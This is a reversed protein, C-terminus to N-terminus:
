HKGNTSPKLSKAMLQIATKSGDRHSFQLQDFTIETGTLETEGAYKAGEGPLVYALTIHPRYDRYTSQHDLTELRGRLRHLDESEIDLKVVDSGREGDDEFVWVEGIRVTVPGFSKALVAVDRASDSTLGYLVTIHFEGERGKAALDEDAISAALDELRPLPPGDSRGYRATAIDFQTSSVDYGMLLKKLAMRDTEGNLFPRTAVARMSKQGVIEPDDIAGDKADAILEDIKDSPVELAGLMTRAMVESMSGDIVGDLIDRIAKLNNKWQRRSMSAYESAADVTEAALMPLAPQQGGVLDDGGKEPPLPPLGRISRFENKTRVGAAIDTALQRELLESDSVDAAEIEIFLGDGYRSALEMTDSEALLDLLPQIAGDKWQLRSAIYALTNGAEQLGVAVPPTHHAALRSTKADQFAEHYAMDKPTTSLPTVQVTGTTALIKGEKTHGAYRSSLGVITRNLETQDGIDPFHMHISPSAGNRMQSSRASDIQMEQDKWQATAALPSQGDDLAVPHPLMIVQVDRSDIVAGAFLQWGPFDTFGYADVGYASNTTGDVRWAGYPFETSPMVPSAAATPIVYRACPIPKGNVGMLKSPVNWILAKGTLCLQLAYRYRFVAGSERPNPRMLREVLMHDVPLPDTEVDEMGYISKWTSFSGNRRLSKIRSKLIQPRASQFAFVDAAMCSNAIASIAVYDWGTYSDAEKRHDSAWGGPIGSALAEIASAVTGHSKSDSGSQELDTVSVIAGDGRFAASAARYARKLREFM